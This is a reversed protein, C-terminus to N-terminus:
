MNLHEASKTHFTDRTHIQYLEETVAMDGKELLEELRSQLSYQTLAYAIVTAYDIKEESYGM